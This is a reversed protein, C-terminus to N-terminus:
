KVIFSSSISIGFVQNKMETIASPSINVLGMGYQASIMLSRINVGTGVNLGADFLKLDDNEGSGFNLNNIEGGSVLKYGGMCFAFYPGAFISIKVVKSGFSYVAMAPIEIYVPSLSMDGNDLNYTSGKASFLFQPQFTFNRMVPIELFGGFRVGPTLEPDADIGNTELTLTSLNMGFIYGPKVQANTGALSVSLLVTFAFRLLKKM